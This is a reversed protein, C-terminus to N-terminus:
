ESVNVEKAPEIIGVRGKVFEGEELVIPRTDKFPDNPEVKQM